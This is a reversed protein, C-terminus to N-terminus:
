YYINWYRYWSWFHRQNPRFQQSQSWCTRSDILQDSVVDKFYMLNVWISIVGGGGGRKGRLHEQQANQKRSRLSRLSLRESCRAPRRRHLALHSLSGPHCWNGSPLGLWAELVVWGEKCMQSMWKLLGTEAPCVSCGSFLTAGRLQRCRCMAAERLWRCGFFLLGSLGSVFINFPSTSTM